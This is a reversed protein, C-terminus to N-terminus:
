RFLFQKGFFRSGFNDRLFDNFFILWFDKFLFSSWFCIQISTEVFLDAFSDRGM